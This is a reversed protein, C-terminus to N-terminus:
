RDAVERGGQERQLRFEHKGRDVALTRDRRGLSSILAIRIGRGSAGSIAKWLIALRRKSSMELTATPYATRNSSPTTPCTRIPSPPTAAVGSRANAVSAARTPWGHFSAATSAAASTSAASPVGISSMRDLAGKRDAM